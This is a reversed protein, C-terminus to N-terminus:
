EASGRNLVSGHRMDYWNCYLGAAVGVIGLGIFIWEVYPIYMNHSINYVYAILLPVLSCALNYACTVLGFAVGTQHEQVVLPVTPWIVQPTYLNM